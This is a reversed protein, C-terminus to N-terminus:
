DHKIHSVSYIYAVACLSFLLILFRDWWNFTDPINTTTAGVIMGNSSRRYRMQVQWVSFTCLTWWEPPPIPVLLVFLNVVKQFYSISVIGSWFGATSGSLCTSSQGSFSVSPFFSSFYWSITSIIGRFFGSIYCWVDIFSTCNAFFDTWTWTTPSIVDIWQVWTSWYVFWLPYKVDHFTETIWTLFQSLIAQRQVSVDRYQGGTFSTYFPYWTFIYTWPYPSRWAWWRTIWWLDWDTNTKLWYQSSWTFVLKDNLILSWSNYLWYQYSFIYRWTEIWAPAGPFIQITDIISCFVFDSPFSWWSNLSSINPTIYWTAYSSDPKQITLYVYWWTLYLKADGVVVFWDENTETYPSSIVRCSFWKKWRANGSILTDDRYFDFWSTNAYSQWILNGGSDYINPLISPDSNIAFSQQLFLFLIWFILFIKKLM